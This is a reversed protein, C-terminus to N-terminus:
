GRNRRQFPSDANTTLLNSSLRASPREPRERKVDAAGHVFMTFSREPEPTYRSVRNRVYVDQYSKPTNSVERPAATPPQSSEKNSSRSSDNNYFRPPCAYRNKEEIVRKINEERVEKAKSEDERRKNFSELRRDYEEPDKIMDRLSRNGALFSPPYHRDSFM